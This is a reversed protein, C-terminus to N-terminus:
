SLLRKKGNYINKLHQVGVDYTKSLRDYNPKINTKKCRKIYLVIKDPLKARSHREGMEKRLVHVSHQSNEKNTVWELNHAHNNIKNGDIHNVIMKNEPNQVFLEAIIRHLNHTTRVNNKYLSITMYGRKAMTPKKERGDRFLRGDETVFYETDKYRVM